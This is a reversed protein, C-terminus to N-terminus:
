TGLIAALTDPADLSPLLADPEHHRLEDLTYIGTAVAVVRAGGARGCAIDNPTDGVVVVNGAHFPRGYRLAARELAIPLLAPRHHHDSGFASAELDLFELLGLAELKFHAVSAINGTLVGQHARGHLQRLAERAGPLVRGQAQVDARRDHLLGLYLTGFSEIENAIADPTLDPFTELLIQRDTKGAYIARDERPSAGYLQRMAERMANAAIGSTTLLTSDIDWLILKEM